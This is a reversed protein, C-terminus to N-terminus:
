ILQNRRYLWESYRGFHGVNNKYEHTPLSYIRAFESVLTPTCEDSSGLCILMEKVQDNYGAQKRIVYYVNDIETPEIDIIESCPIWELKHKSEPLLSSQILNDIPTCTELVLSMTRFYFSKRLCEGYM